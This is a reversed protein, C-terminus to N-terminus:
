RIKAEAEAKLRLIRSDGPNLELANDYFRVADSYSGSNFWSIAIDVFAEAASKPDLDLAKKRDSDYGEWNENYWWHTLARNMYVSAANPDIRLAETYDTLAREYAGLARYISARIGYNYQNPSLQISKNADALGERPTGNLFYALARTNFYNSNNPDLRIAYDYDMIAEVYRDMTIFTYGRWAHGLANNPYLRIAESFQRIANDYGGDNYYRSGSEILAEFSQQSASSSATTSTSNSSGVNYFLWFLVLIVVVAVLLVNRVTHKEKPPPQTVPAPSSVPPPSAAQAAPAPSPPTQPKAQPSKTQPAKAAKAPTDGFLAKELLDLSEGCLGLDLGEEDHLKKALRQKVNNRESEDANKLTQAFGYELCKVFANKQPKPVDQALDSLFASVRKPESLLSDGQETVLKQIIDLFVSSM